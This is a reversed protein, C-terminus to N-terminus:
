TRFGKLKQRTGNLARRGPPKYGPQDSVPEHVLSLLTLRPAPISRPAGVLGTTLNESGVRQDHRAM